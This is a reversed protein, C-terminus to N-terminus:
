RIRWVLSTEHAIKVRLREGTDARLKETFVRGAKAAGREITKWGGSSMREIEFEGGIPAIGWATARGPQGRDVVFPFRWATFAPKATGDHFFLGADISTQPDGPGDRVMLNIVADAGQKWLLYLSEESWEAHRKLPVGDQSDPPDSQWWIETAWVRHRGGAVKNLKEARRLTQVVYKFDPTTADDPNIASRRPGGSTQIPHHALTDFRAEDPCRKGELKGDVKRLCLVERWFRLPRIRSGGAPDGFPATGATVVVNDGRVGHVAAEFSNLMRRYHTAAFPSGGDWQPTIYNTLNPENWAQYYRVHPLGLFSGSYRTAVARAFAAYQDPDPKWTGVPASGPRGPGEAFDPAEYLTLLVDIDRAAADTVAGDLAEFNYAPDSPSAPDTPQWAVVRRWFVNIRVIKAGAARTQDLWHSRAAADPSTFESGSMGTMFRASAAELTPAAAFVAGVCLALSLLQRM